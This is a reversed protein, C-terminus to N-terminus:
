FITGNILINTFRKRLCFDRANFVSSIESCTLPPLWNVLKM